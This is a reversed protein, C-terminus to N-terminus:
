KGAEEPVAESGTIWYMATSCVPDYFIMEPDCHTTRPGDGISHRHVLGCLPCAIYVNKETAYIPRVKWSLSGGGCRGLVSRRDAVRKVAKGPERFTELDDPECLWTGVHRMGSSSVYRKFESFTM